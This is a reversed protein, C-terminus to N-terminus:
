ELTEQLARRHLESGKPAFLIRGDKLLVNLGDKHSRVRDCAVIGDEAVQDWSVAPGRYPVNEKLNEFLAAPCTLLERMERHGAIEIWFGSGTRESLKGVESEYDGVGEFLGELNQRCAEKFAVGAFGRQGIFLFAGYLIGLGILASVGVIIWAPGSSSRPVSGAIRPRNVEPVALRPRNVGGGCAACPAAPGASEFERGCSPCSAPPM